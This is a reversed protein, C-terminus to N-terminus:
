RQLKHLVISRQKVYRSKGLLFINTVRGKKEGRREGKHEETDTMEVHANDINVVNISQEM